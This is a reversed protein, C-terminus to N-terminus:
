GRNPNARTVEIQQLGQQATEDNPRIRLVHTYHTGAQELDGERFLVAALDLHAEVYNADSEIAKQYHAIARSIQGQNRRVLALHFHARADRPTAALQAVLDQAREELQVVERSAMDFNQLASESDPDIRLARRSYVLSDQLYGSEGFMGALTILHERDSPATKWRGPFELALNSPQSGAERVRKVDSLLTDVSVPGRYVAAIHGDPSVLFSTPLSTPNGAIFARQFIQLKELLDVTAL